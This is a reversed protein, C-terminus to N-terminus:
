IPIKISKVLAKQYLNPFGKKINITEKKFFITIGKKRM